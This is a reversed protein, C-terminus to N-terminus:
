QVSGSGDVLTWGGDLIPALLRSCTHLGAWDQVNGAPRPADPAGTAAKASTGRTGIVIRQASGCSGAKGPLTRRRRRWRSSSGAHGGTRLSGGQGCRHVRPQAAARQQGQAGQQAPKGLRLRPITALALPLCVAILARPRRRAAAAGSAKGAPRGCLLQLHHEYHIGLQLHPLSFNTLPPQGAAQTAAVSHDETHLACGSARAPVDGGGGGWGRQAPACHACAATPATSRRCSCRWAAASRWQSLNPCGLIQRCAPDVWSSRASAAAAAELPSGVKTTCSAPRVCTAGPLRVTSAMPGAGLDAMSATVPPSLSSHPRGVQQQCGCRAGSHPPWGGHLSGNGLTSGSVFLHSFCPLPKSAITLQAQYAHM